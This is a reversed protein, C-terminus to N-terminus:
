WTIAKVEDITTAAEIAKHTLRRRGIAKGSVVKFALIAQTVIAVYETKTEGSTVIVNDILPTEATPDNELALVEDTLIPFSKIEIDPYGSLLQSTVADFASNMELFKAAKCTELTEPIQIDLNSVDTM